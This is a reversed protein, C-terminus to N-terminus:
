RHCRVDHAEAVGKLRSDSTWLVLDNNLATVLLNVDIWGLGKGWLVHREIFDFIFQHEKLPPIPLERLLDSLEARNKINGCLLEGVIGPHTYM